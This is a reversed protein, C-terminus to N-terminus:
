AIKQDKKSTALITDSGFIRELAKVEGSGVKIKHFGFQWLLEVQNVFTCKDKTLLFSFSAASKVSIGKYSTFNITITQSSRTSKIFIRDPAVRNKFLDRKIKIKVSM